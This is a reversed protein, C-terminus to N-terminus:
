EGRLQSEIESRHEEVWRLLDLTRRMGTQRKASALHYEVGKVTLGFRSALETRPVGEAVLALVKLRCRPMALGGVVLRSRPGSGGVPADVSVCSRDSVFVGGALVTDIAVRLTQTSSGKLVFGRAGGELAANCMARSQHATLIVFRPRTGFEEILSYMKTLSSAGAFSVDLVVIEPMADIIAHRLDTLAVVIGVVQHYPGLALAVGDAILSHDDAILVRARAAM